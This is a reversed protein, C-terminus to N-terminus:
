GVLAAGSRALAWYMAGCVALLLVLWPVRGRLEMMEALVAYHADARVMFALAHTPLLATAAEAGGRAADDDM